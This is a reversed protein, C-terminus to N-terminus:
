KVRESNGKMACWISIRSECLMFDGKANMVIVQKWMTLYVM